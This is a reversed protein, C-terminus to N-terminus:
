GKVRMLHRSTLAHTPRRSWDLPGKKSESLDVCGQEILIASNHRAAFRVTCCVLRDFVLFVMFIFIKNIAAIRPAEEILANALSMPVKFM